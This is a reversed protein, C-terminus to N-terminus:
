SSIVVLGALTSGLHIVLEPRLSGLLIQRGVLPVQSIEMEMVLIMTVTTMVTMMVTVAVTGRVVTGVVETGVVVTGVVVTETVVVTVM